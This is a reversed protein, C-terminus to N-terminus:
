RDGSSVAHFLVTCYTRSQIHMAGVVIQCGGTGDSSFLEKHKAETQTGGDTQTKENRDEAETQTDKRRM